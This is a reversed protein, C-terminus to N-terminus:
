ALTHVLVPVLRVMCRTIIVVHLSSDAVPSFHNLLSIKNGIFGIVSGISAAAIYSPNSIGHGIPDNSSSPSRTPGSVPFKTPTTM